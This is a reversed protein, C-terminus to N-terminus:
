NCLPLFLGHIQPDCQGPVGVAALGRQEVGQRARVLKHPVPRTDCHLLFLAFQFLVAPHHDGVQRPDIGQGGVGQLFHHGPVVQHSLAGVHNQVDHVAGVQLAVQVQGGLEHLQADGHDDGDVHHVHHPFVPVVDVRSLEGPLQAAGNHLDGGQLAGSHLLGGLGSQFGGPGPLGHGGVGEGPRHLVGNGVDLLRHDVVQRLLLLAPVRHLEKLPVVLHQLLEMQVGLDRAWM